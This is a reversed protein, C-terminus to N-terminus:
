KQVTGESLTDTADIYNNCPGEETTRHIQNSGKCRCHLVALVATRTEQIEIDAALHPGSQKPVERGLRAARNRQTEQLGHVYSHLVSGGRRGYVQKLDKDSRHKVIQPTETWKEMRDTLRHEYPSDCPKIPATPFQVM